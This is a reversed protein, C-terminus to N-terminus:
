ITEMWLFVNQEWKGHGSYDDDEEYNIYNAEVAARGEFDPHHINIGTDLIYVHM